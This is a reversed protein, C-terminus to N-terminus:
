MRDFVSQVTVGLADCYDVLQHAMIKRNGREWHSIMMKSVGVKEAVQAQSIKKQTRLKKLIPGLAKYFSMDEM